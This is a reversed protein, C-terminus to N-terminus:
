RHRHLGCWSTHPHLLLLRMEAEPEDSRSANLEAALAIKNSCLGETMAFLVTGIYSSRPGPSGGRSSVTLGGGNAAPTGRSM